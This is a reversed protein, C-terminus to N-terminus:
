HAGGLRFDVELMDYRADQMGLARYIDAAQQNEQDVYLRLGCVSPTDLALRHIHRYLQSFVGTGRHEAAVYVSQIWWFNGNRWDSWEYTIMTQAIVEGDKEALFYSGKEDDALLAAVGATLLDEDLERSESEAALALNFRVVTDLDAPTAERILATM